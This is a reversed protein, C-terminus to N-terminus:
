KTVVRIGLAAFLHDLKASTLDHTGALYDYVLSRSVRGKVLRALANPTLGAREAALRVADRSTTPKLM